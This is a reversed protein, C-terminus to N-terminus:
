TPPAGEGGGTEQSSHTELPNSSTFGRDRSGLYDLGYVNATLLAALAVLSFRSDVEFVRLIFKAAVMCFFLCLCFRFLAKM